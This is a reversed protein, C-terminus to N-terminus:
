QKVEEPILDHEKMVAIIGKTETMDKPALKRGDQVKVLGSIV